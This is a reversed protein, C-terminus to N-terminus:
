IKSPLVGFKKEFAVTFKGESQYKLLRSVDGIKMQKEGILIKAYDLQKGLYYQYISEGYVMKFDTKLKTPSINFNTALTEISPFNGLLKENLEQEIKQLKILVDSKISFNRPHNINYNDILYDFIHTTFNKLETKSPSKTLGFAKEIMENSTGNVDPWIMNEGKAEFFSYFNSKKFRQNTLLNKKYWETSFYLSITTNKTSKFNVLCNSAKPKFNNWSATQYQLGNVLAIKNKTSHTLVNYSVIYYNAPLQDDYILQIEINKKHLVSGILLWL